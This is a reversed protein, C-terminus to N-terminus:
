MCDEAMKGWLDNVKKGQQEENPPQRAKALNGALQKLHHHKVM